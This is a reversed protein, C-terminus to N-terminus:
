TVVVSPLPQAGAERSTITGIVSADPDASVAVAQGKFCASGNPLYETMKESELLPHKTTRFDFISKRKEWYSGDVAKEFNPDLAEKQGSGAAVGKYHVGFLDALLFDKRPDGFEDFLSTDVSAVLGGGSRVFERVADAQEENMVATNPLVLVKYRSLDKANLNWDNVVTMPFHEEISARFVGFVNSLYREEDKKPDRGYFCNTNDSMVMAAWPEPEKNTCWKTRSRIETNPEASVKTGYTLALFVRRMYEQKPFSSGDYPNGHSM